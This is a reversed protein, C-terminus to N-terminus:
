YCGIYKDPHAEAQTEIISTAVQTDYKTIAAEVTYIYINIRILRQWGKPTAIQRDKQSPIQL